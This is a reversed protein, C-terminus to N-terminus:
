LVVSNSTSLLVVSDKSKKDFYLMAYINKDDVSKVFTKTQRSFQGKQRAIAGPVEKVKNFNATGLMYIGYDLMKEFIDLGSYFRDVVLVTNTHFLEASLRKILGLIPRIEPEKQSSPYHLQVKPMFKSYSDNLCWFLVGRKNKKGANYSLIPNKISTSKTMIEDIDVIGKNDFYKSSIENFLEQVPNFISKLDVVM